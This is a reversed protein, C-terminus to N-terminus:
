EVPMLLPRAVMTVKVQTDCLIKCSDVVLPQVQTQNWKQVVTCLQKQTKFPVDELLLLLLLTVAAANHIASVAATMTTAAAATTTAATDTTV